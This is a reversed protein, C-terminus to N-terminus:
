RHQVDVVDSVITLLMARAVRGGGGILLFFSSLWVLRTPMRDVWCVLVIWTLSLFMGTSFLLLVSRRGYKAAVSGYYVALLLGPRFLWNNM